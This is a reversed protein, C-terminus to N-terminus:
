TGADEEEAGRKGEERGQEKSCNRQRGEERAKVCVDDEENRTLAKRVLRRAERRRVRIMMGGREDMHGSEGDVRANVGRRCNHVHGTMTMREKRLEKIGHHECEGGGLM